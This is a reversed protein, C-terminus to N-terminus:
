SLSVACLFLRIALIARSQNSHISCPSCESRPMRTSSQTQRSGSTAPRRAFHYIKGRYEESAHATSPDIEMGCVPDKVTPM